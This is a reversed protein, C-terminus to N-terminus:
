STKREPLELWSGLTYDWQEPNFPEFGAWSYFTMEGVYVKGNIEYMDVRLFPIEASLKRSIELMEDLHQPRSPTVPDNGFNQCIPLLNWELDFVDCYTNVPKSSQETHASQYVYILKPEGNFTFVKYDTLAKGSDQSSEDVMFREGVIRRPVNKYPWERSTRFYDQALGERLMQKAQEIDLKSKDRCICTGYGSNHTCKLVFQDPLADFDIQDPHEWVGLDPILYEPGVREAIYSRVSYKDVMRTFLPKRHYLKLWQLKENFTQPNKLNLEKGFKERYKKKIYAKDSAYRFFALNWRKKIKRIFWFFRNRIKQLLIM